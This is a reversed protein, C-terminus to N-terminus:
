IIYTYIALIPILSGTYAIVSMFLRFIYICMM